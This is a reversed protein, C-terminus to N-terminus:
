PLDDSLRALAALMDSDHPSAAALVDFGAARILAAIRESGAIIRATRPLRNTAHAMICEWGQQSTVMLVDVPAAPWAFSAACVRRYLVVEDLREARERLTPGLVERGGEGRLLLVKKDAVNQLCPMALLAESNFGEPPHEPQLGAQTLTAATAEGVALWNVGVPWQPWMADLHALAFEAANRSIFIVAHYHDIDELYRREVASLDSAEIRLSPAYSVDHGAQRLAALLAHQQGEPRTVLVHMSIM